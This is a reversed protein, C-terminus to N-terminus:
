GQNFTVRLYNKGSSFTRNGQFVYGDVQNRNQPGGTRLRSFEMPLVEFELAEHASSNHSSFGYRSDATDRTAVGSTTRYQFSKSFLESCWQNTGVDTNNHIIKTNLNGTLTDTAPKGLAAHLNGLNQTLFVSTCRASRATTQFLPDTRSLFWQCEDAWMFVPRPYKGIDRREVARQWLLKFILQAVQGILDFEKVPLDLVIVAGEFSFEPVITTRTSFLEHLTGRMLVDALSTFSSVVISRTRDSLRPFENLWYKASLEFDHRAREPKENAEGTEICRMCFSNEQWSTSELQETDQPASTILDYIESVSIHNRSAALVDIASRLIQRLARDWYPDSRGGQGERREIAEIVEAFLVVLNETQGGGRDGRSFEYNLFAFRHDSEPSFVFLSEQRGTEACYKRWLDAEDRKCCLVLGGYGSRLMAKALAAGSASTKGAGTAGTILVGQSADRVTFVDSKKGSFQLLPHELINQLLRNGNWRRVASLCNQITNM